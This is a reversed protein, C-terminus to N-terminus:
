PRTPFIGNWAICFNFVQYPQRNEHGQGSGFIGVTAPNMAVLNPTLAAEKYFKPNGPTGSKVSAVIMGAPNPTTASEMEANATHTHGTMQITTLTVQEAGPRDNLNRPTLGSGTGMGIPAMGKLNPVMFVTNNGGYTSGIVAYLMEYQSVNYQTGDCLLWGEPAWSFAFPRIEGVYPDSMIDERNIAKVPFVRQNLYYFQHM